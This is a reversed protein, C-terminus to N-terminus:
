APRNAKDASVLFLVGYYSLALRITQGFRASAWLLWYPRTRTPVRYGHPGFSTALARRDRGDVNRLQRLYSPARRSRPDGHGPPAHRRYRAATSPLSDRAHKVTALQAPSIGPRGDRPYWGAFDEDAWLGDLRDRVWMATTGAPNAARAVRATLEPVEVGLRPRISM